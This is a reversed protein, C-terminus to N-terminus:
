HLNPLFEHFRNYVCFESWRITKLEFLYLYRRGLVIFYLCSHIRCCTGCRIAFESRTFWKACSKESTEYSWSYRYQPSLKGPFNFCSALIYVSKFLTIFIKFSVTGTQTSMILVYSRRFSTRQCYFRGILGIIFGGDIPIM